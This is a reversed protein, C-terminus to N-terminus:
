ESVKRYSQLLRMRDYNPNCPTFQGEEFLGLTFNTASVQIAYVLVKTDAAYVGPENVAEDFTYLREQKKRYPIFGLNRITTLDSAVSGVRVCFSTREVTVISGHPNITYEVDDWGCEELQDQTIESM